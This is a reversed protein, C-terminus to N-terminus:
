YCLTPVEVGNDRCVELITQGARGTVQKGDIEITFVPSVQRRQPSQTSLLNEATADSAGSGAVLAANPAAPRAQPLTDTM